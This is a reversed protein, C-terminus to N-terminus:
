MREDPKSGVCATGIVDVRNRLAVLVVLGVVGGERKLWGDASEERLKSGLESGAASVCRDGNRREGCARM